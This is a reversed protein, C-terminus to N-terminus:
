SSPAVKSTSLRAVHETSTTEGDTVDQVLRGGTKVIRKRATLGLRALWSLYVVAVALIFACAAIGFKLGASVFIGAPLALMFPIISVAVMTVQPLNMNYNVLLWIRDEMTSCVLVSQVYLSCILLITLVSGITSVLMLGHFVYKMAEIGAFTDDTAPELSDFMCYPFTMTLLLSVALAILAWFEKISSLLAELKGNDSGTDLLDKLMELMQIGLGINVVEHHRILRTTKKLERIAHENAGGENFRQAAAMLRLRVGLQSFGMERWAADNLLRLSHEDIAHDLLARRLAEVSAVGAQAEM